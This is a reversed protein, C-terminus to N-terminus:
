PTEDKMGLAKIAIRRVVPNRPLRRKSQLLFVASTSMGLLAALAVVTLKAQRRLNAIPVTGPRYLRM